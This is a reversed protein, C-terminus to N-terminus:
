PVGKGDVDNVGGDDNKEGERQAPDMRLLQEFETQRRHNPNREAERDGVQNSLDRERGPDESPRDTSKKQARVTSWTIQCM